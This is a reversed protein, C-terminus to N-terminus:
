ASRVPLGAETYIADIITMNAVADSTPLLPKEGERLCALFHRLQYDYTTETSPGQESLVETLGSRGLTIQYGFHPAIPNKMMLTAKSGVVKLWASRAAGPRMDTKIHARVENDFQLVAETRVDINPRGTVCAASLVEPEGALLSRAWHIPYCGLDMLAGGGLEFTHRLEGARDPIELSFEAEFSTVEGITGAQIVDLARGFAPHFRYHFAELLLTGTESAVEAMRMAAIANMAFPKECLVAKGAKLALITLDEHRNSPLANYVIDVDPRQVLAEYQTEIGVIHHENSFANAKAFDRSAVASVHVGEIKSVPGLLATPAIRAAGLCGFRLM